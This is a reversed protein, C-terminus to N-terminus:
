KKLNFKKKKRKTLNKKLSDARTKKLKERKNSAM